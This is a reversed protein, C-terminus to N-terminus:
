VYGASTSVDLWSTQASWQRSFLASNSFVNLALKYAPGKLWNSPSYIAITQVKESGLGGTQIVNTKFWASLTYSGPQLLPHASVEVRSTDAKQFVGASNAVGNRDVGYTVNRVVGNLGNGSKDLADGCFPYFAVLGNRLTAPLAAPACIQQPRVSIGLVFLFVCFGGRVFFM